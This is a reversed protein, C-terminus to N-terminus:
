YLYNSSYNLLIISFYALHFLLNILEFIKVLDNLILKKKSTRCINSFFLNKFYKLFFSKYKM